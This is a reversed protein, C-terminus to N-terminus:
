YWFLISIIWRLPVAIVHRGVIGRSMPPSRREAPTLPKNWPQLDSLSPTESLYLGLPAAPFCYVAHTLRCSSSFLTWKWKKEGGSLICTSTYPLLFVHLQAAHGEQLSGFFTLLLDELTRHLWRPTPKMPCECVQQTSEENRIWFHDWIVAQM